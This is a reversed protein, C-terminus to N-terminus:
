RSFRLKLPMFQVRTKKSLLNGDADDIVIRFSQRTKEDTDLIGAIKCAGQDGCSRGVLDGNCCGLHVGLVIADELFRTLLQSVHVNGRWILRATLGTRDSNYSSVGVDM